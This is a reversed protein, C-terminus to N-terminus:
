NHLHCSNTEMEIGSLKCDRWFIRLEEKIVFTDIKQTCEKIFHWSIAFYCCSFIVKFKKRWFFIKKEKTINFKFPFPLLQQIYPLSSLLAEFMKQRCVVKSPDYFLQLLYCDKSGIWFFSQQRKNILLLLVSAEDILLRKCQWM